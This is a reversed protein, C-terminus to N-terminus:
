PRPLRRLRLSKTLTLWHGRDHRQIDRTAASALDGEAGRTVTRASMRPSPSLLGRQAFQSFDTLQTTVVLKLYAKGAITRRGVFPYEPPIRVEIEEGSATGIELWRESDLTNSAGPPPYLCDISGAIGLDLICLYLPEPHRHRVRLAVRDGDYLCMEGGPVTEPQRWGESGEPRRRVELEVLGRLPNWLNPNELALVQQYRARTELDAVLTDVTGQEGVPRLPAVPEGSRDIALWNSGQTGTTGDELHVEFCRFWPEDGVELCPRLLRSEDLKTLLLDTDPPPARHLLSVDLREELAKGLDGAPPEIAVPLQVAGPSPETEVARCGAVIAGPRTEELILARAEVSSTELVELRGLRAAEASSKTGAPVVNWRSGVGLGHAAGGGLVAMDDRRERVAVYDDPVVDRVGFLLRDRAGELQPHQHPFRRSVRPAALELVDRYTTVPLAALLERCLHYTFAGHAIGGAEAAPLECASERDRSAAILVYRHDPPLWGTVGRDKRQSAKAVPAGSRTRRPQELGGGPLRLDPEVRRENVDRVAGGSHCSDIIVTISETRRSLRLLWDHIEKDRIDRNPHGRRGSDYPVLTEDLGDTEGPDDSLMQSGHGSYYFVVIDGEDVKSLLDEMAELVGARTAESDRLLRIRQSAFEFRSELLEAILEADHVCGNLQNEPPFFPYADIGVLLARKEKSSTESM